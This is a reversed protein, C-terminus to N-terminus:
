ARPPTPRWDGSAAALVADWAHKKVSESTRLPNLSTPDWSATEALLDQIVSESAAIVWWTDDALEQALQWPGWQSYGVLVCFDTPPAERRRVMQVAHELGGIYVGDIVEMADEVDRRGHVIHLREKGLPGGVCLPRRGFAAALEEELGLQGVALPTPMNLVIGTTGVADDHELVLVVGHTFMGLAPKRAVLLAGREPVAVAHAWGVDARLHM